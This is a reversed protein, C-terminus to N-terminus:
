SEELIEAEIGMSNLFSILGQATTMAWRRRFDPSSGDQEEYPPCRFYLWKTYGGFPTGDTPKNCAMVGRAIQADVPVVVHYDEGDPAVGIWGENGSGAPLTARLIDHIAIYLM